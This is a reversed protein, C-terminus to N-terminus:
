TKATQSKIDSKFASWSFSVQVVVGQNGVPFGSVLYKIFSITRASSVSKVRSPFRRECKSIYTSAISSQPALVAGIKANRSFTFSVLFM